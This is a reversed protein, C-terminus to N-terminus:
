LRPFLLVNVNVNQTRMDRGLGEIRTGAEGGGWLITVTTGTSTTVTTTATTVTTTAGTGTTTDTTDITPPVTPHQHSKCLCETCFHSDIIELCCDGGDFDCVDINLSDECFGDGQESPEPCQKATFIQTINCVV